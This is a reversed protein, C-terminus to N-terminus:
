VLGTLKLHGFQWDTKFGFLNQSGQILNSKLPMSVNGAEIKKIIDDESFKQSDYELKLKNEFGFTAQTNYNTNLKLKDGVSGQVDLQIDPDFLPGWQTKQAETISPNDNFSYYGGLSLGVSGVPKIEVGLGGFIRDALNRQINVKTIPDIAGSISRKASSIGALNKLFEDDEEKTRYEMYEDPTMYTPPKYYDSGIKETIKYLGSEPDYEVEREVSKPDKLDFPNDKKDIDIIIIRGADPTTDLVSFSGDKVFSPYEPVEHGGAYSFDCFSWLLILFITVASFKKSM